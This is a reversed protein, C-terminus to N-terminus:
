AWVGRLGLRWKFRVGACTRGPIAAAGCISFDQTSCAFFPELSFRM